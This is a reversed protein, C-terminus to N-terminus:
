EEEKNKVPQDFFSTNDILTNFDKIEEVSMYYKDFFNRTADNNGNKFLPVFM